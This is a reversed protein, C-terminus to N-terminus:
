RDNRLDQRHTRGTVVLSEFVIEDQGTVFTQFEFVTEPSTLDLDVTASGSRGATGPLTAVGDVDGRFVIARLEGVEVEPPAPSRYRVAIQYRGPPFPLYPGYTVLGPESGAAMLVDDGLVEGRTRPLVDIDLELPFADLTPLEYVALRYGLDSEHTRDLIPAGLGLEARVLGEVAEVREPPGVVAVQTGELRARLWVDDALAPPEADFVLHHRSIHAQAFAVVSTTWRPGTALYYTRDDDPIADMQGDFWLMEGLAAEAGDGGSGFLEDYRPPRDPTDYATVDFQPAGIQSWAVLALWLATPVTPGWRVGIVVVAVVSAAVLAFGAGPPLRLQDPVGVALLAVWGVTLGYLGRRPIEGALRGIVLVLAVGFTPYIMSWYYSLELSVGPASSSTSFRCSTSCPSSCWRRDDRDWRVSADIASGVDGGGVHGRGRDGAVAAPLDLHLPRAVHVPRGADRRSGPPEHPLPITPGYLDDIGYVLRFWMAGALVIAVTSGAAVIALLLRHRWTKAAALLAVGPGAAVTAAFPNAVVLLGTLGGVIAARGVGVAWWAEVARRPATGGPDATHPPRLVVLVLALGYAVVAYEVYDTFVARVYMPMTILVTGTLLRQPWTWSPRLAWLGYLAASAIVLRVLLRGGLPGAVLQALHLPYWASWRSVAYHLEVGAGLSDELDLGLGTYFPPDVSNPTLGYTEPQLVLFLVVPLAVAGALRMWVSTSTPTATPTSPGADIAAASDSEGGPWRTGAQSPPVAVTM